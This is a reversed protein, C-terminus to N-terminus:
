RLCRYTQKGQQDSDYRGAQGMSRHVSWDGRRLSRRRRGAARSFYAALLLMHGPVNTCANRGEDRVRRQEGLARVEVQTESRLRADM